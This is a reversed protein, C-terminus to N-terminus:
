SLTSRDKGCDDESSGDGAHCVLLPDFPKISVHECVCEVSLHLLLMALILIVHQLLTEFSSLQNSVRQYELAGGLLLMRPNKHRQTM